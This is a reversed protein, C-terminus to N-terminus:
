LVSPLQKWDGPIKTDDLPRSWKDTNAIHSVYMSQTLRPQEGPCAVFYNDMANMFREQYDQPPVVTVEKGANLGQKAKHELTKAFTYSGVLTIILPRFEPFSSLEHRHHGRSRM